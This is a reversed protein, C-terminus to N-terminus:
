HGEISSSGAGISLANQDARSSTIRKRFGTKAKPMAWESGGLTPPTAGVPGAMIAGDAAAMLVLFSRKM